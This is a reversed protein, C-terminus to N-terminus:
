DRRNSSLALLAYIPCFAFFSTGLMFVGVVFFWNNGKGALLGFLTMFILVNGAVLRIFRDLPGLNKKM